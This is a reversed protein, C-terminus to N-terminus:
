GGRDRWGESHGGETCRLSAERVKRVDESTGMKSRDM